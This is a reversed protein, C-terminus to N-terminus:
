GVSLYALVGSNELNAQYKRSVPVEEGNSMTLRWYGSVKKAAVIDATSVWHSRHVCFGEVGEMEAIADKMRIRLSVTGGRTHVDVLHDNSSLWLVPARDGEPLRGLLRPVFAAEDGVHELSRTVPQSKLEDIKEKSTSILFSRVLLIAVTILAVYGIQKWWPPVYENVHHVNAFYSVWCILVAGFLASFAVTMAIEAKLKENPPFYLRAVIRTLIGMSAALGVVVGWFIFRPFVALAELTSFPGSITAVATVLAVIVLTM